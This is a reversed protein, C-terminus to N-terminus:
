FPSVQFIDHYLTDFLYNAVICVPNKSCGARLTQGSFHLKIESDSVADFIGADAAVSHFMDPTRILLRIM